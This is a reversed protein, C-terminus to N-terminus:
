PSRCHMNLWQICVVHEHLLFSCFSTAAVIIDISENNSLAIRMHVEADWTRTDSNVKTIAFGSCPAVDSGVVHGDSLRNKSGM